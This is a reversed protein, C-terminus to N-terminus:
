HAAALAVHCVSYIRISPIAFVALADRTEVALSQDARGPAALVVSTARRGPPLPLQVRIREIQRAPPAKRGLPVAYNIVHLMFRTPNTRSDTYAAVRLHDTQATGELVPQALNAETLLRYLGSARPSVRHPAFADEQRRRMQLDFTGVEGAAMLRRSKALALATAVQPGSLYRVGPIILAQYHDLLAADWKRETLLNVLVHRRMLARLLVQAQSVHQRDGYFQQEAFCALAVQGYPIYGEYLERHSLFFENYTKRVEALDPRSTAPRHLFAGGGSFAAAEALGLAAVDPNMMYEPRQRPYGARTLLAARVRGNAAYTHRHCFINDNVHTVKIGAIIEEAILGPHSGFEGVSYEDMALDCDNFTTVASRPRGRLGNPYVFWSGRETAGAERIMALFRKVTEAWFRWSEVGALTEFSESLKVDQGFLEGQEKTSYKRSLFDRFLRQCIACHCRHSNANDVFNGDYGCRANMRTIWKVYQQWYPNNLCQSYRFMPSYPPHEKRYFHWPKGDAKRQGWETPDTPPKPGIGLERLDDWHDYLEWYGTRKEPDGGITMICIYSVITKAGAERMGGILKQLRAMRDRYMRVYGPSPVQKGQARLLARNRADFDGWYSHVCSGNQMHQLLPPGLAVAKLFENDSLRGPGGDLVYTLPLRTRREQADAVFAALIALRWLSAIMHDKVLM